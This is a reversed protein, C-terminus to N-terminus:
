QPWLQAAWLAAVTAKDALPVLREPLGEFADAAAGAQQGLTKARGLITGLLDAAEVLYGQISKAEEPRMEPTVKVAAEKVNDRAGEANSVSAPSLAKLADRQSAVVTLEDSLEALLQQLEELTPEKDAPTPRGGLSITANKVDRGAIISGHIGGSVNGIRVGEPKMSM